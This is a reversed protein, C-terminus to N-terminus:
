GTLTTYNTNIEAAREHSLRIINGAADLILEPSNDTEIDPNELGFISQNLATINGSIENLISSVM